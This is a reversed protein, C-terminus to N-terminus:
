GKKKKSKELKGNARWSGLESSFRAAVVFVGDADSKELHVALLDAEVVLDLIRVENAVPSGADSLGCAM